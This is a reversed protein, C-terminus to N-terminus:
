YVLGTRSEETYRLVGPPGEGRAYNLMKWWAEKMRQLILANSPDNILNTTEQPDSILNFLEEYVAPENQLSSEIFRRYVIMDSDYVANLSVMPIGMEEAVKVKERFSINENRYYRIYKWEKDQVAEIKPNGFHTSWLNETFIFDRLPKIDGRLMPSLDVGQMSAPIEVGALSLMTPAIDITQVLEDVIKGRDTIDSLPDYIIMPVHTCVQYCLAKGGLGFQGMFKGHDSTFIIITNNDLKQRALEETIKGVMRDIGTMAQLKKLYREKVGGPTDVYDYSTQRDQFHLVEEPIKPTKIDAKAIYNPLLPMEVDRYLSKYIADDSPRMEMSGTGADHPLNFCISLCFPKSEPRQGIFRIAGELQHKNSLFDLSGEELIEVQTNNGAQQFIVHSTKPYFGLQRHGGYWYDFSKEMVGSEYGGDGVPTHNKGIYGTYYGASRMLMPYTQSWTELDLSTGSKFNVGHKREYQGTFISARSPTCIASTVYANTFRIGAKALKDLNPTKVITNGEHGMLGTFQDDTLIFIFNPRINEKEVRSQASLIASSAITGLFLINQYTSV